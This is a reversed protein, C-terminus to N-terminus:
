VHGNQDLANPSHYGDNVQREAALRAAAQKQRRKQKKRNVGTAPPVSPPTASSGTGDKSTADWTADMQSVGVPPVRTKTTSATENNSETTNAPKTVVKRSTITTSSQEPLNTPLPAPRKPNTPM